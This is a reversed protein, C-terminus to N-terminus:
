TAQYMHEQENLHLALVTVLVNLFKLGKLFAFQDFVINKAPFDSALWFTSLLM